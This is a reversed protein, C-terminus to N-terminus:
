AKNRQKYASFLYCEGKMSAKPRQFMLRVKTRVKCSTFINLPVHNTTEESIIVNNRGTKVTQTTIADAM